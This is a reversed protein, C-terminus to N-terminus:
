LEDLLETTGYDVEKITNELYSWRENEPPLEMYDGYRISLFDESKQPTSFFYGEFARRVPKGFVSRPFLQKRYVQPDTLIAVFDTESDNDSKMIDDARRFLTSFSVPSLAFSVLWKLTKKAISTKNGYTLALKFSVLRRIKAIKSVRTQETIDPNQVNDIPFIDIYIGDYRPAYKRISQNESIVHTSKIKLVAHPSIHKVENKYTELFLEKDLQENFLSIMREYQDRFMAVDIDADWPIFGNHRVAGLLTGFVLYYDLGFESCKRDFYELIKLQALQYKRIESRNM